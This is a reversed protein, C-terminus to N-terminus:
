MIQVRAFYYQVTEGRALCMVGGVRPERFCKGIAEVLGALAVFGCGGCHSSHLRYGASTVYGIAVRTPTARCLKYADIATTMTGRSGVLSATM